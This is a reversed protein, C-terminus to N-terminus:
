KPRDMLFANVSQLTARAPNADHKSAVIWSLRRRVIDKTIPEPSTASVFMGDDNFYICLVTLAVGVSLDRGTSCAFLLRPHQTQSAIQKIFPKLRPLQDRLTRSGLKGTHSGLHLLPPRGGINTAVPLVQIMDQDCTIIGDMDISASSQLVELRGIFLPWKSNGPYIATPQSVSSLMSEKANSITLLELIDGEEQSASLLPSLNQWFATPTLGTSWGESDDGAGQIYGDTWTGSSAEHRSATCCLVPHYTPDCLPDSSPLAQPSAQTIWGVRLPKQLKARLGGVDLKLGKLNELFGDLRAEIQSHESRGVVSPPTRLVHSETNEPFLLRNMVACWVPVTKSLADPMSKGNGRPAISHDFGDFKEIIDLIQINLRRLSFKWQGQHGDTSKFYASGLKQEPPIYWSGCRENAILPLNQSVSVHQVFQSDEHISTLRNKISFKSQKLSALTRSFNQSATPLILSEISTPAPNPVEDTNMSVTIIATM